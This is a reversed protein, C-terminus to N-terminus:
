SFYTIIMLCEFRVTTWSLIWGCQVDFVPRAQNTQDFWTQLGRSGEVTEITGGGNAGRGLASVISYAIIIVEVEKRATSCYSKNRKCLLTAEVPFHINLLSLRWCCRQKHKTRRARWLNRSLCYTYHRRASRSPGQQDGLCQTAGLVLQYRSNEPLM